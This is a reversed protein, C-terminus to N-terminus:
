KLSRLHSESGSSIYKVADHKYKIIQFNTLEGIDRIVMVSRKWEIHLANFSSWEIGANGDEINKTLLVM